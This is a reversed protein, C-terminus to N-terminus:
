QQILVGHGHCNLSSNAQCCAAPMPGPASGSFEIKFWLCSASLSSLTGCTRLSEVEVGLSM